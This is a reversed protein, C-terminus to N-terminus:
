KEAKHQSHFFIQAILLYALVTTAVPSFLNTVNIPVQPGTLVVARALYRCHPTSLRLHVEQWSCLVQGVLHMDLAPMSLSQQCKPIVSSSFPVRRKINKCKARELEATRDKQAPSIYKQLAQSFSSNGIQMKHDEDLKDSGTM